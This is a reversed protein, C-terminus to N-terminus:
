ARLAVSKVFRLMEGSAVQPVVADCVARSSVIDAVMAGADMAPEVQSVVGTQM